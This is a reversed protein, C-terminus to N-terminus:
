EKVWDGVGSAVQLWGWIWAIWVFNAFALHTIQMWGPASLGINVLGLFIQFVVLAVILRAARTRPGIPAERDARQSEADTLRGAGWVLIVSGIVALVPHVGRLLDLFHVDGEPRAADLTTGVVPYLTDGLATVAGAASVVALTAAGGYAWGSLGAFKWDLSRLQPRRVLWLCVVLAAVLAMTNVLHIAMVVARAKSDNEGVLELLVLAAGVLAEVIMFGSAALSARRAPYGASVVRFTAATLGFVLVM